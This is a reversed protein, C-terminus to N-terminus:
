AVPRECVVPQKTGERLDATKYRFQLTGGYYGGVFHTIYQRYNARINGRTVGNDVHDAVLSNDSLWRWAPTDSDYYSNIWYDGWNELHARESYKVPEAIKGGYLACLGFGFFERYNYMIAKVMHHKVPGSSVTTLAILCLVLGPLM